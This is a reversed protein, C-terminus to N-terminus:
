FGVNTFELEIQIITFCKIMLGQSPHNRLCERHKVNFKFKCKNRKSIPPFIAGGGRGGGGGGGGGCVCGSVTNLLVKM